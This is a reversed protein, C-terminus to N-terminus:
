IIMIFIHNLIKEQCYYTDFISIPMITFKDFFIFRKAIDEDKTDKFFIKLFYLWFAKINVKKLM